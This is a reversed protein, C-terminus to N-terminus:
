KKILSIGCLDESGYAAVVGNIDKILINKFYNLQQIYNKIEDMKVDKELINGIVVYDDEYKRITQENIIEKVLKMMGIKSKCKMTSKVYLNGEDNFDVRFKVGAMCAAKTGILKAKDKLCLDSKNRGSKIFGEPNPVFFSTQVYQKIIELRKVIEETTLGQKVLDNAIADILTGGTAGNLTDIVYVKNEYEENLMNAVLNASNVSGESIGSSMSLHIIDKKQELISVFKDEYDGILPSATKFLSGKKIKELIDKQTIDVQDRYSKEGNEIIQGPIMNEECIPDIGSDTTIIIKEM